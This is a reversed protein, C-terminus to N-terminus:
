KFKNMTMWYKDKYIDYSIDLREVYEEALTYATKSSRRFEKCAFYITRTSHYTERGINLYGEADPLEKVLREEFENMLAYVEDDPMGNNGEGEYKIEIVMMWPHSAKRDWEMLEDNLIALVPLGNEDKAEYSSYTDNETFYRAGKYKELFEKERWELFETLKGIPIWETGAPVNGAVQLSDIMTVSNLEGLANDLYIVSGNRIVPESTENFDKHVLTIEIEDPYGPRTTSFFGITDNNFMYGDMEISINDFGTAPKLATFKWGNIAPASAILEEAFVITKIDGEPTIVLEATNEDDMGALCFFKNNLQELKNMVVQLFRDDVQEKSKLVKFFSRENEAFWKWFSQNDVLPVDDKGGFMKRLFSM